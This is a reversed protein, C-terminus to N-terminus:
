KENDIWVGLGQANLDLDGAFLTLIESATLRCGFRTTEELLLQSLGDRIRVHRETGANKERRAINAHADVLRHLKAGQAAVDRLQSFHTLYMAHPQYGLLLDISARM